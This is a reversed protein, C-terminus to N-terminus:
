RLRAANAVNPAPHIRRSSVTSASAKAQAAPSATHDGQQGLPAGQGRRRHDGDYQAQQRQPPQFGLLRAPQLVLKLRSRGGPGAGLGLGGGGPRGLCHDGSAGPAVLASHGLM